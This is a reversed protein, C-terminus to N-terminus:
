HHRGFTEKILLTLFLSVMLGIPIIGLAISFDLNSYASQPLNEGHHLLSLLEGVAPQILMGGLMILFNAFSVATGSIEVPCNEKSLAFCLPHPGCFVGLFFLLAYITYVNYIPLFVLSSAIIASGVASIILPIKRTHFHDSLIGTAFSSLIWGSLVVSVGTAGEAATFHRATKLFPIGWADVFVSSPLYLLAGVVGILWMQPMKMIGWLQSLLQRYSGVEAIPANGNMDADPRSKVTLFIYLFLFVGVYLPFHLASYFSKSHILYTLYKDTAIAALMGSGTVFGTATAFYRRPLWLTAIKLATVYAFAAGLGILFRGLLALDFVRTQAFIFVGLIAILCGTLLSRRAGIRDVTVGVVLQMPAYAFYYFGTLFGFDRVPVDFRSLLQNEMVSPYVRLLYAFCYYLVGSFFVIWPLAVRWNIKNGGDSLTTTTSTNM